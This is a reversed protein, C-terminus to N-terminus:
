NFFNPEYGEIIGNEDILQQIKEKTFIYKTYGMNKLKYYDEVIQEPVDNELQWGLQPFIIIRQIDGVIVSIINKEQEETENNLREIFQSFTRNPSTIVLKKNKMIAKAASLTRRQSLNNHVIIIKDSKINYKEIVKLSFRFNDGTNTSKNEIFIKNKDIGQEIAIERYKEAETKDFSDVTIKGLGGSFLINDAYNNKLLEACKIPINLNACGCGLILDSKEIKMDLKMYNWIEELIKIKERSLM